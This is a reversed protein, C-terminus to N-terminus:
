FSPNDPGPDEWEDDDDDDGDFEDYENLAVVHVTAEDGNPKPLEWEWRHVPQPRNREAVSRAIAETVPTMRYVAPGSFFQTVFGGESAPIDIRGMKAGFLEVESALGAVRVRGMLELVVWEGGGGFLGSGAPAGSAPEAQLRELEARAEDEAAYAACLPCVTPGGPWRVAIGPAHERCEQFEQDSM